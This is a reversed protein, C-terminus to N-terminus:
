LRREIPLRGRTLTGAGIMAIAPVVLLAVVLNLWPLVIPLPHPGPWENRINQNLVEIIAVAAAVGALAGLVSGLGAIVASQSLSLTRRVRPSAGVAALTSLDQRGDAAALATAVAAAALTIAAAAAMLILVRPDTRIPAGHEVSGYLHMASLQGQMSDEESQTPMRSTMAILSFPIAQLGLQPLAAPSLIARGTGTGTTLLYGPVRATNRRQELPQSAPVPQPLAQPDPSSTDSRDPVTETFISVTVMGDRDIDRADRVVIGGARLADQAHRLDDGSAGTLAALGSGDDVVVFPGSSFPHNCRPDAWAARAQDGELSGVFGGDATAYPCVEDPRRQVGLACYEKESDQCDVTSLQHIETVPLTSRLAASAQDVSAGDRGNLAVEVYGTPTAPVYESRQQAVSGAFYLGIAVSGAVAAMVASIAPAAAARNRAADRLAIRPGLPLIRGARAILGVLAPTCLALGIEGLILGGLIVSTDVTSTGRWVVVGGAACVAAGVVLWRKRSRIIGRRGILSTVIDQRSSVFAPVLAALVGTAVALAAIALLALPFVRYGGARAGAMTTEIFPRAVFAAVIGLAIGVVAGLGGLVIGDALVIRRVQSPTAGNAAVLALQRQRRRASVAFAPGAMLVIELLALGAILVELRLKQSDLISAHVQEFPVQDAPPPDILVARSTVLLGLKNYALVDSWSIPQPTRVIYTLASLDLGDPTDGTIAPYLVVTTLMSPFEIQGVVTSPHSGDALRIQGGLGVGLRAMAEQSLAVEASGATPLRGALLSVYGTTLPTSADLSFADMSGVGAPLRLTVTGRRVPLVTSGAPLAAALDAQTPMPLTRGKVPPATTIDTEFGNDPNPMQRLPVRELWTIRATGTGMTRDAVESATLTFMDYSVAAFTLFLVPLGIMAIVLASRGKARRAERRAIRLSTRWSTFFRM